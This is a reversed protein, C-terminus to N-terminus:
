KFVALAPACSSEIRDLEALDDTAAVTFRAARQTAGAFSAGGRPYVGGRRVVAGGAGVCGARYVGRACVIASAESAGYATFGAALGLVVLIHKMETRRNCRVGATFRAGFVMVVLLRPL